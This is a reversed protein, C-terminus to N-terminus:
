PPESCCAREYPFTAPHCSIGTQLPTYCQAGGMYRVHLLGYDANNYYFCGVQGTIQRM